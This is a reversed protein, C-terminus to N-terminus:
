RTVRQRSLGVSLLNSSIVNKKASEALLKAHNATLGCKAASLELRVCCPANSELNFWSRISSGSRDCALLLMDQVNCFAKSVENQQGSFKLKVALNQQAEVTARDPMGPLAILIAPPRTDLQSWWLRVARTVLQEFRLGRELVTTQKTLCDLHTLALVVRSRRGCLLILPIVLYM